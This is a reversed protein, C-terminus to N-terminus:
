ENIIPEESIFNSNIDLNEAITEFHGIVGNKLGHADFHTKLTSDNEIM